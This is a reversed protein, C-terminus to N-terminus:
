DLAKKLSKCSDLFDDMYSNEIISNAADQYKSLFFCANKNKIYLTACPSSKAGFLMSKILYETKQQIRGGETFANRM